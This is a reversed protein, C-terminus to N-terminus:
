TFIDQVNRWRNFRSKKTQSSSTATKILVNDIIEIEMAEGIGKAFYESQNYGRKKLTKKHLPVPVIVNICSFMSSTKLLHGYYRGLSFGIEKKGKYKLHHILNQVKGGENFEYLSAASQVNTRGWFLKTVPNDKKLHFDTKPLNYLCHLCICNEKKLLGRGCAYCVQPFILSLFDNFM